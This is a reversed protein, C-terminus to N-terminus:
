GSSDSEHGDCDSLPQVFKYWEVDQLRPTLKPITCSDWDSCAGLNWNGCSKWLEQVLPTANKWKDRLRNSISSETKISIYVSESDCGLFRRNCCFFIINWGLGSLVAKLKPQALNNFIETWYGTHMFSSTKESQHRQESPITMTRKCWFAMLWLITM